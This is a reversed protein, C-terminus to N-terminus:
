RLRGFGLLMALAVLAHVLTLNLALRQRAIEESAYPYLEELADLMGHKCEDGIDAFDLAPVMEALDLQAVLLLDRTAERLADASLLRRGQELLGALM